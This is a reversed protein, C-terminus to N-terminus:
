DFRIVSRRGGSPSMTTIEELKKNSIKQFMKALSNLTGICPTYGQRQYKFARRLTDLEFGSQVTNFSLHKRPTSILAEKTTWIKKGDYAFQCHHFDFSELIDEVSEYRRKIFQLFRGNVEYTVAMRIDLVPTGLKPIEVDDIQFYDFDSDQKERMFWRRICGGALVFGDIIPIDKPFNGGMQESTLELIESM